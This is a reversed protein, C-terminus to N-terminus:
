TSDLLIDCPRGLALRKKQGTQPGDCKRRGSGSRRRSLGRFGGLWGFGGFRRCRGGRRGWGGGLGGLRSLRGSRRQRLCLYVAPEGYDLGLIEVGLMMREDLLLDLLEGLLLAVREVM